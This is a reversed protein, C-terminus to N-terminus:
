ILCSHHSGCSLLITEDAVTAVVRSPNVGVTVMTGFELDIFSFDLRHRTEKDKIFNTERDNFGGNRDGVFVWEKMSALAAASFSALATCGSSM